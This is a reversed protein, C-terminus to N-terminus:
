VLTHILFHKQAHCYTAHIFCALWWWSGYQSQELALLKLGHVYELSDPQM